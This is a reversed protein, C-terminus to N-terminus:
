ENGGGDKLMKSVAVAMLIADAIDDKKDYKEFNALTEGNLYTKAINVSLRKHEKNKTSYDIGLVTFKLKPDFIIIKSAEVYNLAASTIAYMLEMCVTNLNVQREIIVFKVPYRAFIEAFFEKIIACRNIVSNATIKSIPSKIKKSNKIKDEISFISFIPPPKQQDNETQQENNLPFLCYGINKPGIDISFLM